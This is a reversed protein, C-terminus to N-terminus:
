KAVPWEPHKLEAGTIMAHVFDLREGVFYRITNQDEATGERSELEVSIPDLFLRLTKLTLATTILHRAVSRPGQDDLEFIPFRDIEEAVAIM